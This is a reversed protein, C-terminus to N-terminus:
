ADPLPIGPAYSRLKKPQLHRSRKDYPHLRSFQHLGLIRRQRLPLSRERVRRMPM